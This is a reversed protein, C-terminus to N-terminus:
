EECALLQKRALGGLIVASDCDGNGDFLHLFGFDVNQGVKM